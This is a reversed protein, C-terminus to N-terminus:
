SPLFFIGVQSIGPLTDARMIHRIRIPSGSRHLMPTPLTDTMQFSAGIGTGRWTGFEDALRIALTDIRRKGSPPTTTVELWLTTYRFDSAHRVGIALRGGVISDPHVPTFRLTDGYRWLDDKLNRYESYDNGPRGCSTLAIITLGALVLAKVSSAITKKPKAEVHRGIRAFVIQLINRM